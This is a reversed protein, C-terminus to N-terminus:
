RRAAVDNSAPAATSVVANRGAEKAAYLAADAAELLEISRGMTPDYEAIGASITLGKGHFERSSDVAARVREAFATADAAVSGPLLTVFEEGGYRGTLDMGRTNNELIRAVARLADDGGAHGYRDNYRKFGDIDFIVVTLARGREAAAFYRALFDDLVRRNPIGTLADTYALFSATVKDRLHLESVAGIGLSVTILLVSVTAFVRWDVQQTGLAWVAVVEVAVLAIMAAATAIAAGKWGKHYALLFCPVLALLWVLASYDNLSEPWVFAGTAAVGLALVSIALVRPPAAIPGPPQAPPHRQDVPV